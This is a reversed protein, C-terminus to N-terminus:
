TWMHVNCEGNQAEEEGDMCCFSQSCVMEGCFLCLAPEAPVTGCQKCSRVLSEAALTDLREPLGLLEYIAPHSLQEFESGAWKLELHQRLRVTRAPTTEPGFTHFPIGLTAILRPLEYPSSCPPHTENFVVRQLISCRRLYPLAYTYLLKGLALQNLPRQPRDPTLSRITALSRYINSLEEEEEMGEVSRNVQGLEDLMEAGRLIRDCIHALTSYFGLTAVHQFASPLVASIEILRALEAPRRNGAVGTNSLLGGIRHLTSVGAIHPRQVKVIALHLLIALLSKLMQISAESVADAVPTSHDAFHSLKESSSRTGGRSAIELASITYGILGNALSTEEGEDGLAIETSLSAAVQLMKATMYPEGGAFGEPFDTVIDETLMWLSPQSNVEKCADLDSDRRAQALGLIYAEYNESPVQGERNPAQNLSDVVSKQYHVPIARHKLWEDLSRSDLVDQMPIADEEEDTITVPLLVNGLSKCLPCVFELRECSEPHCRTPQLHHRVEISRYYTEFCSLHMLHGCASAYLGAKTEQPFGMSIGNVNSTSTPSAIGAPRSASADVDLSSPTDLVEALLNRSNVTARSNFATATPTLRIFNSTQILSLSGFPRTAELQDQCVICTGPSKGMRKPRTGDSMNVGEMEQDEVEVEDASEEDINESSNLFSLQADAFQKMIAEQRAKAALRKADMALAPALVDEVRRLSSISPGVLKTLQDLCWQAKQRVPKMRDDEEIKVLLEVLTTEGPRTSLIRENAFHAFFTPQEVIALMSLHLAEDVLAESFLTGRSQGHKMSFYIIQLLLDSNFALSLSVFPGQTIDLRAPVIVSSRALPSAKKMHERVLRDAEERQNRSYRPFYPDVQTFFEPKLAYLGQDATGAPLKFTAVEALVKDLTPDDSFKESVRRMLDSYACPGLCLHHVIERKLCERNSKGAINTPDSLLVIITYLMEEIMAFAQAPEYVPHQDNGALWSQLQFRNLIAMLVLSPDLIVLSTQLFYIDQDYTNERLSYEKYHLQQARMGFGNRVWLGARIQAVLVIVTSRM